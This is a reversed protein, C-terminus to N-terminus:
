GSGADSRASTSIREGLRSRQRAPAVRVGSMKAFVNILEETLGDGVYENDRDASLNVFPLVVLSVSGPTTAPPAGWLATAPTVMVEGRRLTAEALAIADALERATQFREAPYKALARDVVAEIVPSPAIGSDRLTPSPQSFRKALIELASSGAFARQGSLLEYLVCGLSYVDARGDIAGGDAQEPSMYSPTGVLLGTLTLAAAARGQAAASVARAIGFDAVIAHDDELLLNEPKVDRHVV